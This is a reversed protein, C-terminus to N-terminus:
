EAKKEREKEPATDGAEKSVKMRKALQIQLTKIEGEMLTIRDKDDLPLDKKDMLEPALDCWAKQDADFVKVRGQKLDIYHSIYIPFQTDAYFGEVESKYVFRVNKHIAYRLAPRIVYINSQGEQEKYEKLLENFKEKKKRGINHYIIDGIEPRGTKTGM